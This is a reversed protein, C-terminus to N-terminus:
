ELSYLYAAIHRAHELRVGVDPMATGPIVAQPDMIWLILNEAHNPVMGAIFGRRAFRHLPPGSRGRATRVGPALHCAGCGYSQFLRRGRAVDGEIAPRPPLMAAEAGVEAPAGRLLALLLALAALTGAAALAIAARPLLPLRAPSASGRGRIAAFLLVGALAALLVGGGAMVIWGLADLRQYGAEAPLHVDWEM